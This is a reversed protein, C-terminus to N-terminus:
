EYLECPKEHYGIIDGNVVVIVNDSSGMRKLYDISNNKKM